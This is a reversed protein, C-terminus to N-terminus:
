EEVTYGSKDLTDKILNLDIKKMQSGKKLTMFRGATNIMGPKVIDTFGLNYLIEKIEPYKNNIEYISDNLNIIKNM